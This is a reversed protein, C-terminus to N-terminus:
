TDRQTELSSLLGLFPRGCCGHHGKGNASMTYAASYDATTSELVGSASWIKRLHAAIDLVAFKCYRPMCYVAVPAHNNTSSRPSMSSKTHVSYHFLYLVSYSLRFATLSSSMLIILDNTTQDNRKFTPM